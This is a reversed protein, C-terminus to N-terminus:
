NSFYPLDMSPCLSKLFGVPGSTTVGAYVDNSRVYYTSITSYSATVSGKFPFAGLPAFSSIFFCSWIFPLYKDAPHHIDHHVAEPTAHEGHGHDDDHHHPYGTTPRVVEDRIYLSFGEWANWWGFNSTAM